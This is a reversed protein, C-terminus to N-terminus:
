LVCLRNKNLLIGDDEISYDIKEGNRVLQVSQELKVESKQADIMMQRLEPTTKFQALLARDYEFRWTGHKLSLSSIM